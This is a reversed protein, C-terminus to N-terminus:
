MRTDQKQVSPGIISLLEMFKPHPMRMYEAFGPSDEAALEKFITGYARREVRRSVWQRTWCRREM